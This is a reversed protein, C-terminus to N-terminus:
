GPVSRRPGGISITSVPVPDGSGSALRAPGDVSMLAPSVWMRTSAPRPVTIRKAAAPDSGAKRPATSMVWRWLSWMQARLSTIVVCQIM